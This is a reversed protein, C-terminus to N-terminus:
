YYFFSSPFIFGNIDGPCLEAMLNCLRARVPCQGLGGYVMPLERLQTAVAEQIADPVTYGLNCCVAQSTWDMYKKGDIDYIHIGEGRVLM